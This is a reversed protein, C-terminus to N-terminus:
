LRFLEAVSMGEHIRQIAGAFLEAVSLVTIVPLRKEPPLPITDTVVLEKLASNAVRTIADDSFVGHMAGAYVDRAGEQKVLTAAQTM